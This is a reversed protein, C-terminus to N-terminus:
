FDYLDGLLKYDESYFNIIKEKNSEKLEFLTREKMEGGGTQYRKFPKLRVGSSKEVYDKLKELSKIDVVFDFKELSCGLYTVQKASHDRISNNVSRYVEINEIFENINPITPLNLESLKEESKLLDKHYLVRNTYMSIFREFPERVVAINEYEGFRSEDYYKAPYIHHIHILKGFITFKEFYYGFNNRFLENNVTSCANKPVPWFCINTGKFVYSANLREKIRFLGSLRLKISKMM